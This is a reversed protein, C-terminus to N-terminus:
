RTVEPTWFGHEVDFKHDRVQREVSARTAGGTRSDWGCTCTADWGWTGAMRANHRIREPREGATLGFPLVWWSIRHQSTTM